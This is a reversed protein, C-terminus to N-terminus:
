KVRVVNNHPNPDPLTLWPDAAFRVPKQPLEMEVLNEGSEFDFYQSAMISTEPDFGFDAL